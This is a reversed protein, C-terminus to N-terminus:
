ERKYQSDLGSTHLKVYKRLDRRLFNLLDEEADEHSPFSFIEITSVIDLSSRDLSDVSRSIGEEIQDYIGELKKKMEITNNNKYIVVWLYTIVKKGNIPGKFSAKSVFNFGQERLMKEIYHEIKRVYDHDKPTYQIIASM